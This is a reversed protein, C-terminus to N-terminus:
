LLLDAYPRRRFPYLCTKKRHLVGKQRRCRGCSRLDQGQSQCRRINDRFMDSSATMKTSASWDGVCYITTLASCGSFMNKANVVKSVDFSMLDLNTLKECGSFMNQMDTVNSTIFYSLDLYFLESCDKFMAHMDAVKSTNIYQLNIIWFLKSFGAFWGATTTPRADAVSPTIYVVTVDDKWESWDTKGGQSACQNDYFLSMTGGDYKVAYLESGAAKVTGAAAMCLAAMFLYFKKM